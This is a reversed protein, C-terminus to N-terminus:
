KNERFAFKESLSHQYKTVKIEGLYKNFLPYGKEAWGAIGKDVIFVNKYGYKYLMSVFYTARHKTRCLVWIETNPDSIKKPLTYVMEAELNNSDKIHGTDFEAERRIDIIVANSKGDQINQWTSHLDDINKYASAPISDKCENFVKEESIPGESFATGTFVLAASFVLILRLLHKM